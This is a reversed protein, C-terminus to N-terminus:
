RLAEPAIVQRPIQDSAWELKVIAEGTGDFYELKLAHSGAELRLSTSKTELTHVGWNDILLRDDIFLRSGDDSSLFLEYVGPQEVRLTGVWRASFFDNQGLDPPADGHWDFNIPSESRSLALKQLDVDRYYSASLGTGSAVPSASSPPQPDVPPPDAVPSTVVPAAAPGNGCRRGLFYGLALVLAALLLQRALPRGAQAPPLRTSLHQQVAGYLRASRVFARDYRRADAPSVSGDLSAFREHMDATLALDEALDHTVLSERQNIEVARRSLDEFSGAEGGELRALVTLLLWLSRHLLPASDITGLGARDHVLVAVDYLRRAERLLDRLASAATSASQPDPSATM